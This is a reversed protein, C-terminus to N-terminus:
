PSGAQLKACSRTAILKARMPKLGQDPPLGQGVVRRQCGGEGPCFGFGNLHDTFCPGSLGHWQGVPLCRCLILPDYGAPSIGFRGPGRPLILSFTAWDLLADVKMPVDDGGSYRAGRFFIEVPVDMIAPTCMGLNVIVSADPITCLDEESQDQPTSPIPFSNTMEDQANSSEACQAKRPRQEQSASPSAGSSPSVSSTIGPQSVQSATSKARQLSPPSPRCAAGTMTTRCGASIPASGHQASRSGAMISTLWRSSISRKKTAPIMLSFVSRGEFMADRRDSRTFSRRLAKGNIAIVDELGESFRCDSHSVLIRM